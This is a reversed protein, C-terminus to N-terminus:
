ATAAEPANEAEAEPAEATAAAAGGTDGVKGSDVKIGPGM